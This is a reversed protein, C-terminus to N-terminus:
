VQGLKAAAEDQICLQAITDVIARANGAEIPMRPDAVQPSSIEQYVERDSVYSQCHKNFAAVICAVTTKM